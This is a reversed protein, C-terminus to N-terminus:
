TRFHVHELVRSAVVTCVLPGDDESMGARMMQAVGTTNLVVM